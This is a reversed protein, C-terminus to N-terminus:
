YDRALLEALKVENMGAAKAQEGTRDCVRHFEATDLRNLREFEAISPVVAVDRKQRQIVVPERSAADILAAFGRKAESASVTRM